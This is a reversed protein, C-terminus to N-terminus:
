AAEAPQPLAITVRYRDTGAPGADLAFDAGYLRELRQRTNRLGVGTTGDCRRAGSAPEGSAPEDGRTNDVAVRLTGDTLAVRVDITAPERTRAVGHVVANEILPQLLLPPVDCARGATAHDITFQLRPGFRLQQLELYSTAFELEWALPVRDQRSAEVVYRLLESLRALATTALDLRAGRILGAITNLANFLFHPELQARLLELEAHALRLRLEAGDREHQRARQAILIVSATLATMSYLFAIWMLTTSATGRLQAVIGAVGGGHLATRVLPGWVLWLPCLVLGLAAARAALRGSGAGRAMARQMAAFVAAAVAIVAADSAARDLLVVALESARGARQADFHLATGETLSLVAWGALCGAWLRPARLLRM